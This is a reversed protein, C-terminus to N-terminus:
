EGMNLKLWRYREKINNVKKELETEKPETYYDISEYMWAGVFIISMFFLMWIIMVIWGM